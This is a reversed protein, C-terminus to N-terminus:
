LEGNFASSLLAMKLEELATLKRELLGELVRTQTALADLAEVVQQQAEVTAPMPIPISNLARQNLKPQAAGTIYKDVPISELFYEVFQQTAVRDFKLIHVHNNVWYRGSASFAIPNFSM